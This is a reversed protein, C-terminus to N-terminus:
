RGSSDSLFPVNEMKTTDYEKEGPICLAQMMKMSIAGLLGIVVASIIRMAAITILYAQYQRPISYPIGKAWGPRGRYDNEQM